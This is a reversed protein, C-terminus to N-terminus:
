RREYTATVAGAAVAHDRAARALTARGPPRDLRLARDLAFVQFLYRHPGHGTPPDPPLWGRRLYSNRGLAHGEGPAGPSRLAAEPLAGDEAPLNWVLAHVLPRPSPADADEVVLILSRASPPVDRWALAPSVGRGDATHDPHLPGGDRFAPSTVAITRPLAALAPTRILARDVGARLTRLARGLSRPVRQLM